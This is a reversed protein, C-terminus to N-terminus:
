SKHIDGGKLVHCAIGPFQREHSSQYGVQYISKRNIKFKQSLGTRWSKDVLSVNSQIHRSLLM